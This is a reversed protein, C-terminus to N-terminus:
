EGEKDPHSELNHILWEFYGLQTDGNQVDDKWDSRPFDENNYNWSKIIDKSSLIRKEKQNM